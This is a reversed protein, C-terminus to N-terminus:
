SEPAAASVNELEQLVRTVREQVLTIHEEMLRAALDADGEAMADVITPREMATLELVSPDRNAIVRILQIQGQLHELTEILTKNRSRRALESHFHQDALSYAVLDGERLSADVAAIAQRLGTISQPTTHATALRVAQMELLKRVEYLDYAEKATFSRISNGRYPQYVLLGNGILKTIAERVPTRSVNLTAALENEDLRSGIPLRGDVVRRLIEHYVREGLTQHRDLPTLGTSYLRRLQRL